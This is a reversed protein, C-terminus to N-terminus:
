RILVCLFETANIVTFSESETCDDLEELLQEYEEWSVDQLTLTGGPPLHTIFDLYGLALTSMLARGESDAAMM